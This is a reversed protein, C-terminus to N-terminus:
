SAPAPDDRFVDDKEKSINDAYGLKGDEDFKLYIELEMKLVREPAGEPPGYSVTYEATGKINKGKYEIIDDIKFPETKFIRGGGRPLFLSPVEKTLKPLARTGIRVDFHDVKCRLAGASFNRFQLGFQLGGDKNDPNWFPVCGEFLLAYKYDQHPKIIRPHRRDFLMQLGIYTWLTVLSVGIGIQVNPEQFFQTASSWLAAGLGFLASLLLGWNTSLLSVIFNALGGVPGLKKFFNGMGM